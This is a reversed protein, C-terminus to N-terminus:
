IEDDWVLSGMLHIAGSAIVCLNNESFDSTYPFPQHHSVIIIMLLLNSSVM